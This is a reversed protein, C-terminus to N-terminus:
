PSFLFILFVSNKHVVCCVTGKLLCLIILDCNKEQLSLLYRGFVGTEGKSSRGTTSIQSGKSLISSHVVISKHNFRVNANLKSMYISCLKRQLIGVIANM